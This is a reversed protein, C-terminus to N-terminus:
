MKFNQFFKVRQKVLSAPYGFMESIEGDPLHLLFVPILAITAIMDAETETKDYVGRCGPTHFLYHGYEHWATYLLEIGRLRDSLVIVPKGRRYFFLGRWRMPLHCVLIGERDCITYFDDLTLVRRNFGFQRFRRPLTKQM